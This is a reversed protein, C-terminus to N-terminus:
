AAGGGGNLLTEIAELKAVIQEREAEVKALTDEVIALLLGSLPVAVTGFVGGCENGISVSATRRMDEYKLMHKHLRIEKDLCTLRSKLSEYKTMVREGKIYPNDILNASKLLLIYEAAKGADERSLVVCAEKYEPKVATHRSDYTHQNIPILRMLVGIFAVSM